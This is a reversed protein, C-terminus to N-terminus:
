ALVFISFGLDEEELIADPIGIRDVPLWYHVFTLFLTFNAAQSLNGSIRAFGFSWFCSPKVNMSIAATLSLLLM